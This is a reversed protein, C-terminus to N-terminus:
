LINAEFKAGVLITSYTHKTGSVPKDTESVYAAHYRIADNKAERFEVGLGLKTIDKSKTGAPKFTDKSFKVFPTLLEHGTYAAMAMITSEKSDGSESSIKKATLLGYDVAFKVTPILNFEAGAGLMSAERWDTTTSSSDVDYAPRVTYGVSPKIMGNMLNGGWHAAYGYKTQANNSRSTANGNSFQVSFTQGMMEKSVTAGFETTLGDAKDFFNSTVYQDQGATMIETGGVLFGQKGLNLTLGEALTRVVGVADIRSSTADYAANGASESGALNLDMYYTTSANLKGAFDLHAYEAAILSKNSQTKDYDKHSWSM